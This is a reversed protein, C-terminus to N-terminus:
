NRRLDIAAREAADPTGIIRIEDGSRLAVGTFTHRTSSHRMLMLAGMPLLAWVTITAPLRQYNQRVNVDDIPAYRLWAASGTEAFSPLACLGFLILWVIATM